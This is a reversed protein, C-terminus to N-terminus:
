RNFRMILYFNFFISLYLFLNSSDYFLFIFQCKFHQLCQLFKYNLLIPVNCQYNTISFHIIFHQITVALYVIFQFVQLLHVHFNFVIFSTFKIHKVCLYYLQLSVVLIPNVKKLEKLNRIGQFNDFQGIKFLIFTSFYVQLYKIKLIVFGPRTSVVQEPQVFGM